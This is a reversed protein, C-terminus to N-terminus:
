WLILACRATTSIAAKQSEQAFSSTELSNEFIELGKV